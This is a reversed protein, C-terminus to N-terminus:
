RTLTKSQLGLRKYIIMVPRERTSCVSVKAGANSSKAPKWKRGEAFRGLANLRRSRPLPESGEFSAPDTKQQNAVHKANLATLGFVSVDLAKVENAM